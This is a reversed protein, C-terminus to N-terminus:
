SSIVAQVNIRTTLVDLGLDDDRIATSFIGNDTTKHLNLVLRSILTVSMCSTFTALNGRTIDSGCYYTLINPLNILTMAGFYMAGDQFIIDPIKRDFLSLRLCRRTKWTRFITLIFILLEYVFVAVWAVWSPLIQRSKTSCARMGISPIVYAETTFTNHCDSGQIYTTTNNDGFCSAAVGAGLALGFLIMCSLFRRNRGYLAHIRLTLTFCVAIQQLFLLLERVLM